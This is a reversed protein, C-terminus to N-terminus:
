CACSPTIRHPLTLTWGKEVDHQTGKELPLCRMMWANGAARFRVYMSVGVNSDRRFATTLCVIDTIVTTINSVHGRSCIPRARNNHRTSYLWAVAPTCKKTQLQVFPVLQSDPDNETNEFYFHHRNVVPGM